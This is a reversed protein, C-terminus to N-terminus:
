CSAFDSVSFRNNEPLKGNHQLGLNLSVDSTSIGFRELSSEIDTNAGTTGFDVQVTSGRQCRDDVNVTFPIEIRTVFYPRVNNGDQYDNPKM